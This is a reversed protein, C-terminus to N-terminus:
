EISQVSPAVSALQFTILSVFLTRRWLSPPAEPHSSSLRAEMRWANTLSLFSRVVLKRQFRLSFVIVHRSDSLCVSSEYNELEDYMDSMRYCHVWPSLTLQSIRLSLRSYFWWNGGFIMFILFLVTKKKKEIKKKNLLRLVRFVMMSAAIFSIRKGLLMFGTWYRGKRVKEKNRCQNMTVNKM